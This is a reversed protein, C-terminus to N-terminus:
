IFQEVAATAAAAQEQMSEALSDVEALMRSLDVLEATLRQSRAAAAREAAARAAQRAACARAYAADLLEKDHADQQHQLAQHQNQEM